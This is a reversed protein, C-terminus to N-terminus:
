ITAVKTRDVREALIKWDALHLNLNCKMCTLNPEEKNFFFESPYVANNDCIPCPPFNTSEIDIYNFENYRNYLKEDRSCFCNFKGDSCHPWEEQTLHVFVDHDYGEADSSTIFQMDFGQKRCERALIISRKEGLHDDIPEDYEFEGVVILTFPPETVTIDYKVIQVKPM